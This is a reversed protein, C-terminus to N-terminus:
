HRMSKRVRKKQQKRRKHTLSRKKRGNGGGSVNRIAQIEATVADIKPTVDAWVVTGNLKTKLETLANKLETLANKLGGTNLKQLRAAGTGVDNWYSDDLMNDGASAPTIAEVAATIDLAPTAAAAAAVLAAKVKKMATVVTAAAAAAGVAGVAGVAADVALVAADVLDDPGAGVGTGVAPANFATRHGNLLRKNAEGENTNDMLVRGDGTSTLTVPDSGDRVVTVNAGAANGKTFTVIIPTEKGSM